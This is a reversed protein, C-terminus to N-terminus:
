IFDGWSLLCNQNIQNKLQKGIIEFFHIASIGNNPRLCVLDNETIIEGIQMQRNVALSRRAVDRTNLESATCKKVGDGLMIEATRIHNIYSVLQEPNLSARHDPGKMNQDLTFHKELCCAGLTVAMIAAQSGLTHDSFGILKTDLQKIMTTITKLNCDEPKTPYCSICHLVTINPQINNPYYKLLISYADIIEKLNSMGTSLIIPKGTSAIAKLLQYNTLDGSGVKFRNVGLENLFDVSNLDFPTSIFEIGLSDCQEKIIFYDSFSLELEKLMQYQTQDAKTNNSEAMNDIQYKAKQADKTVLQDAKFTQFKVADAGAQHAVEIMKLATNLDGNHNVGVEAIIFTSM